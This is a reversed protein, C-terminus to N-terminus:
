RTRPALDSPRSLVYTTMGTLLVVLAIVATIATSYDTGM